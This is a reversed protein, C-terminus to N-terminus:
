SRRPAATGGSGDSVVLGEGDSSRGSGSRAPKTGQSSGVGSRGGDLMRRGAPTLNTRTIRTLSVLEDGRVYGPNRDLFFAVHPDTRRGDPVALLDPHLVQPRPFRVIGREADYCEGFRHRAFTDLLMQADDPVLASASGGPGASVAFTASTATGAAVATAATSAGVTIAVGGATIATAAAAASPHFWRFFVPLFRYTRFGSTLLLWYVEDTPYRECIRMVSGIWLRPLTRTGWADRDVITDGSYVLVRPTGAVDVESVALTSFGRLRRDGGDRGDRDDRDDRDDRAGGAVDDELLLIWQKDSLDSEFVEREVGRFHGAMLAFMADRQRGDLAERAILRGTLGPAESASHNRRIGAGDEADEVVLPGTSTNSRSMLSM